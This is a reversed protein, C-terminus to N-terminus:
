LSWGLMAEPVEGPAQGVGVGEEEEQDWAKEAKRNQGGDREVHQEMLAKQTFNEQQKEM